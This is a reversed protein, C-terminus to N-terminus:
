RALVGQRDFVEAYYSQLTAADPCELFRGACAERLRVNAGFYPGPDLGAAKEARLAALEDDSLPFPVPFDVAHVPWTKDLRGLAKSRAFVFAGALVLGVVVVLALLGRVARMM